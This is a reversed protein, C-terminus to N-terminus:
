STPESGADIVAGAASRSIAVLEDLAAVAGRLGERMEGWLAGWDLGKEGGMALIDLLASIGALPNKVAHVTRAVETQLDALATRCRSALLRDAGDLPEVEAVQGEGAVWTTVQVSLTTGDRRQVARVVRKVQAEGGTQKQAQDNMYSELTTFELLSRGRMEERARGFLEAFARNASVIVEGHDLIAFARPAKDLLEPLEDRRDRRATPDSM